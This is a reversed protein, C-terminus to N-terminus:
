WQRQENNDQENFTNLRNIKLAERAKRKHM